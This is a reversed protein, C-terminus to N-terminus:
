SSRSFRKKLRARRERWRQRLSKRAFPELMEETSEPDLLEHDSIFNEADSLDKLELLTLTKGEGRLKEITDILGKGENELREIEAIDCDLHEAMLDRRQDRIVEEFGRNRNQPLGCDVIVDCESDLGMSRNNLNASGVRLFRDDIVALKAHVYIDTGAENVPVYIRFNEGGPNKQITQMLRQRTGDMAVSELWGDATRPMVMVIEPPNPESLRTCIAAAIRPSTFYQNEIYAFRECKEIMDIVLAENERVEEVDNWAARTRAIAIDADEFMPDLNEPWDDDIQKVPDLDRSTAVKWRERGLEGLAEAVDGKMLMTTDHWPEYPHGNPTKRCPDDPKHERTDWRRMAIDIGGCAALSEDIVVIKQHHSCGKPHSSDFKLNIPRAIWWRILWYTARLSLFQKLAGFNWKLIDIKRGPKKRALELFFHGLSAHYSGERDPALSIRTDFDWGVIFIREQAREMAEAIVRYYDAADVIVSAHSAREIRWCNRGVAVIPTIEESM